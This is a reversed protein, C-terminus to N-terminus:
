SKFSMFKKFMDQCNENRYATKFQHITITGLDRWHPAIRFNDGFVKKELNRLISTLGAVFLISMPM